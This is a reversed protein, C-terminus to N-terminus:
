LASVYVVVCEIVMLNDGDLPYLAVLEKMQRSNCWRGYDALVVRFHMLMFAVVLPMDSCRAKVICRQTQMRSDIIALAEAAVAAGSADWFSASIASAGGADLGSAVACGECSM